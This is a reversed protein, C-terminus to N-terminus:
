KHNLAKEVKHCKPKQNFGLSPNDGIWNFYRFMYVMCYLHNIVILM